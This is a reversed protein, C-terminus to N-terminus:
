DVFWASHSTIQQEIPLSYTYVERLQVACGGFSIEKELDTKSFVHQGSWHHPPYETAHFFILLYKAGKEKGVEFLDLFEKQPAIM